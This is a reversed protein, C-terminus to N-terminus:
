VPHICPHVLSTLHSPNFAICHILNASVGVDEIWRESIPKRERHRERHKLGAAELVEQQRKTVVTRQEAEGAVPVGDQLGM